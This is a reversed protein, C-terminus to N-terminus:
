KRNKLIPTPDLKESILNLQLNLQVGSMIDMNAFPWAKMDKRKEVLNQFTEAYEDTLANKSYYDQMNDSVEPQFYIDAWNMGKFFKARGTKSKSSMLKKTLLDDIKSRIGWWPIKLFDPTSLPIGPFQSTPVQGLKKLEPTNKFLQNAFRYYLRDNPHIYSTLRLLKTSMGPSFAYFHENCILVQKSLEKRTFTYWSFLEDFLELYPLHHNEIRTFIEEIDKKTAEFIEQKYESYRLKKFWNDDFWGLLKQQKIKKWQQFNEDTAPTLPFNEKRIYHSFFSKKRFAESNFIKINRAPLGECLEGLLLPEKSAQTVNTLIELWSNLKVSETEKVFNQLVRKQPFFLELDQFCSYRAGKIKALKGAVKSEYNKPNGFTYAHIKKNQIAGLAIRSDMGGSLAINVNESIQTCLSVEKKYQNWYRNIDKESRSVSGIEQYLTDDYEKNTIIGSPNQFVIKEGPLIAKCNKLITRSGINEFNPGIARQMIGAPDNEIQFLRGLLILNNSIAFNEEKQFYYLPYVNTLDTFIAIESQEHHITFGSFSGTINEPLPWFHYASQSAKLSSEYSDKIDEDRLYGDIVSFTERDEFIRSPDNILLFGSTLQHYSLNKFDDVKSADLVTTSYIFNM